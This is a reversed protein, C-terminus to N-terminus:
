VALEHLAPFSVVRHGHHPLQAYHLRSALALFGRVEPHPLPM